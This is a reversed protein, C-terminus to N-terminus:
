RTREAGLSKELMEGAIEIATRHDLNSQAPDSIQALAEEAEQRAQREPDDATVQPPADDWPDAPPEDPLPVGDFGHSENYDRKATSRAMRARWGTLPQDDGTGSAQDPASHQARNRPETHSAARPAPRHQEQPAQDQQERARQLAVAVPDAPEAPEAPEAAPEASEAPEPAPPEPAAEAKGPAEQPPHQRDPEPDATPPQVPEQAPAPVAADSPTTGVVATVQVPHGTVQEAAAAYSAANGPANIFNALAGTHHHLVITPVGDATAPGAVPTAGRAAIWASLNTSKLTELIESWRSVDDSPGQQETQEPQEPELVPAPETVPEPQTGPAPASEVDHAPEPASAPTNDSASEPVPASAPEPEQEPVPEAESEQAPATESAQGSAPAAAAAPGREAVARRRNRRMIERAREAESMEEDAAAATEQVPEPASEPGSEPAPEPTQEPVAEPRTAQSQEPAPAPASQEPADQAAPTEPVAAARHQAEERQAAEQRQAEQQAAERQAAERQSKRVYRTGGSAAAVAPAVSADQGPATAGTDAGAPLAKGSELAEVRQALAEVTMGAAPLAMRACLIELLLRPSTAGRMQMLGENVLAACRTLTAQGLEGAQRELVERQGAPADVLGNDFADPVAQVVLLDRFRDLLDTAFRRPDHGADIVDGVVSFLGAQDQAALADVTTDLLAADTVGLLSVARSYTV